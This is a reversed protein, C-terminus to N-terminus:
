LHAGLSTLAVNSWSPTVQGVSVVNSFNIVCGGHVEHLQECIGISAAKMISYSNVLINEKAYYIHM